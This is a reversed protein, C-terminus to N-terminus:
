IGLEKLFERSERAASECDASSDVEVIVWGDFRRRILLDVIEPLRVDGMGLPVFGRSYFQYSRGFEPSWDKLHIARIMPLHRDIAQIVDDGALYCHATDPMLSVDIKRTTLPNTNRCEQIVQEAEAITQTPKFMHPHIVVPMGDAVVNRLQDTTAGDHYIYPLPREPFTAMWQLCVSHREDLSGANVGALELGNSDLLFALQAVPLGLSSPTQFLEVGQYGTRRAEDFMRNAFSSDGRLSEWLITQIGVRINLAM